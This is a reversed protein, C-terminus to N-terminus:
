SLAPIIRLLHCINLGILVPNTILVSSNDPASLARSVAKPRGLPLSREMTQSTGPRGQSAPLGM